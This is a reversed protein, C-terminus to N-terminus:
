PARLSSAAQCIALFESGTRSAGGVLAGDFAAAGGSGLYAAVNASTVSGGYLLRPARARVAALASMAQRMEEALEPRAPVGTGIAWLPEYALVIEGARDPPPLSAALMALVVDASKGAQREALTEGVCIIPVLSAALVAEAKAAVQASTEGLRHRRESHGVIVFRAGLEALMRPAVAGTCADDDQWHADQAGLLMGGRPLGALAGLLPFPPCIVAQVGPAPASQLLEMALALGTSVSPTTKWNGVVLLPRQADSGPTM